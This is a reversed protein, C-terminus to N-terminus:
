SDIWTLIQQKFSHYTLNDLDLLQNKEVLKDFNNRHPNGQLIENKTKTTVIKSKAKLKNELYGTKEIIQNYDNIVQMGTKCEIFYMRSNAIFVVDLEHHPQKENYKSYNLYLNLELDSIVDPHEKKMKELIKYVYLELWGGTSFKHTNRDNFIIEENLHNVTNKIIKYDYLSDLLPKFKVIKDSPFKFNFNENQDNNKEDRCIGNLENFLKIIIKLERDPFKILNNIFETQDSTVQNSTIIDKIINTKYISLYDKIKLNYKNGQEFSSTGSQDFFEITSNKDQDILMYNINECNTQMGAIFSRISMSKTGGTINFLIKNKQYEQRTLEEILKTSFDDSNNFYILQIEHNKSEILEKFPTYSNRMKDSILLIINAKNVLSKNMIFPLYNPVNNDTIICFYYEYEIFKGM